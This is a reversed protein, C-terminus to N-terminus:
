AAAPVWAVSGHSELAISAQTEDGLDGSVSFDTCKFNGAWWGGGAALLVGSYEVRCAIANDSNFWAFYYVTNTTHLVGAGNIKATLSVKNIKTWAILEPDSCDPIRRSNSQSSFQIGRATNIFCPHAFVPTGAGDSVKILLSKGAVTNAEAM